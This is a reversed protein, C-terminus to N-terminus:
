CLSKDLRERIQRRARFLRSKVAPVTLGLERATEEASREGIERLEYVARDMPTLSKVASTICHRMEERSIETEPGPGSAPHQDLRESDVIPLLAEKRRLHGCARRGISTLWGRFAGEDRLKEMHRYAALLAEVLVDEADDHNGCVRVMQKYVADKHKAVLRDYDKM